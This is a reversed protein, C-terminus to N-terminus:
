TNRSFFDTIRICILWVGNIKSAIILCGVVVGIFIAQTKGYDAIPKGNKLILDGNGDRLPYKEGITAQIQSSAASILNGLQYTLGPVLGRFAPPSLENLHAPVVGFGGQVFFQLAFAGFRLSHINPAYIWLPIFAGILLCSVVICFKRGLYNSYFGILIGGIIAGINYVVSTVTMEASTYGLQTQLFTPYLDQSGHALFCFFAMLIVMYIIRLYHNRLMIWIDLIFSRDMLKRAEKTKEFTASEPVFFRMFVALLAFVAGTWYVIRWTSGTAQVAFNVLTALLYGLAYGLSM